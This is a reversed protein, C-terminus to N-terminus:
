NKNEEERLLAKFRVKQRLYTVEGDVIHFVPEEKRMIPRYGMKEIRAICQEPSENEEMEFWAIKSLDKM